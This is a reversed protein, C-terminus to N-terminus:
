GPQILTGRELQKKRGGIPPCIKEWFCVLRWKLHPVLLQAKKAVNWGLLPQLWSFKWSLMPLDVQGRCEAAKQRIQEVLEPREPYFYVLNNHLYTLCAQRVRESDELTKLYKIHLKMSRWMSEQKSRSSGIYALGSTGSYRYYVKAQSVFRVGNSALLVRCFYEGDDDVSLDTSWPGAAETLERSVLWTGTQMFLNQGIKRLLFDPRSLDNWLASPVFKAREPRHWFQGWASSFLTRKDNCERVAEMQRAIKEPALLDDADLWQIYDGHSLMFAKNRAASAGQHKQSVIVVSKSEFGRAVDLTRDDSGDDVVIIEKPDWNQALASHMTESIRDEANYAPILISVLPKSGSKHEVYPGRVDVNGSIIDVTRGIAAYRNSPRRWETMEHLLRFMQYIPKLSRHLLVIVSLYLVGLVVSVAGIRVAAGVAGPAAFLPTIARIILLTSFGALLSAVIYKWIVALLVGLTLGIPQGAYWIAPIM